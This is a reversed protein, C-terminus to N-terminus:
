PQAEQVEPTGGAPKTPQQKYRQKARPHLATLGTALEQWGAVHLRLQQRWVINDVLIIGMLLFAANHPNFVIPQGYAVVFWVAWRMFGKFSLNVAMYISLAFKLILMIWGGELLVRSLESEVYGFELVYRSVGFLIVAGQYTSGLGVGLLPHQYRNTQLYYFDGLIRATQEGSRRNSEVRQMFNDYAKEVTDLLSIERYLLLVATLILAPLLLRGAVAFLSSVPYERLLMAGTLLIYVLTGSRSGTMTSAAFGMAVGTLVLWQPFRLRVLAWLMLPYFLLYATYGSLYSFTGTVRVRDGVVAITQGERAYKNLIHDPPLAYQTFALFLELLAIAIFLKALKGPDFLQRNAFYYFMGLWFGGHVLMGFIGHFVTLQLPYVIHFALYAFYVTLFGFRRFPSIASPSRWYLILFPIIMQVGLIINSLASSSTFWKRIAGGLTAILFLALFLKMENNLRSRRKPITPNPIPM